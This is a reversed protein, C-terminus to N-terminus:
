PSERPRGLLMYTFQGHLWTEGAADNRRPSISEEHVHAYQGGLRAVEQVVRKEANAMLERYCCAWLEDRRALTGAIRGSNAEITHDAIAEAGLPPLERYWYVVKPQRQATTNVHSADELIAATAMDDESPDRPSDRALAEVM